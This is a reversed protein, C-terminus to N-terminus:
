DRLYQRFTRNYKLDAWKQGGEPEDYGTWKVVFEMDRIKKWSGSHSVIREVHFEEIRDKLAMQQPDVFRADYHYPRLQFVLKKLREHTVLDELTYEVGEHSLVKYPGRFVMGLKTPRKRKWVASEPYALLVMQGNKFTTIAKEEPDARQAARSKQTRQAELIMQDQLQRRDKMFTSLEIDKRQNAKPILINKDLVVSDGFLLEAPSYKITDV